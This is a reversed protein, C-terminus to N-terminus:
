LVGSVGQEYFLFIGDDIDRLDHKIPKRKIYVSLAQMFRDSVTLKVMANTGQKQNKYWLM